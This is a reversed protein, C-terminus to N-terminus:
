GGIGNMGMGNMGGGMGNMGGGMNNMAMMPNVANTGQNWTGWGQPGQNKNAWPSPGM